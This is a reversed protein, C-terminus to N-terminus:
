DEIEETFCTEQNFYSIDVYTNLVRQAYKFESRGRECKGKFGRNYQALAKCKKNNNLTLFKKIASIGAQTYNCHGSTPCHYKPLVGLPGKAGKHSTLNEFRTEQYAVSIALIPDVKQKIAEKAVQRCIKMRSPITKSIKKQYSTSANPSMINLMVIWCLNTLNM